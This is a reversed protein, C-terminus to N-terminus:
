RPGSGISTLWRLIRAPELKSSRFGVYTDPRVILVGTGPWDRVRDVHTLPGLSSPDLPPTDRELLIHVGPTAVVDHLRRGDETLQTDPLRDGPRPRARSLRGDGWSLASRRYNIRLQSLSRAGEAVLRRRRLMMPVLPAAVPAVGSRLFRAVPDTGAEGWFLLRTAALVRRAVPRRESEYSDLLPQLDSHSARSRAAAFALKWGLNLADQIGTNMGQGGAPSHTHAADGVLFASRKRYRSALRHELPVRSSWAVDTVTADLSADDLLRQVGVKPVAEEPGIGPRRPRTALVRWTAQESLALLFLLGTGSLAMHGVEPALDTALEVDALVVEHRYPGGEWEAGVSRRVLSDSGDCGAVFRASVVESPGDASRVVATAQEGDIGLDTLEVGWEVDVGRDSLADALLEEVVAQREFVLFPFRTDDLALRGLQTPVVRAGLHLDVSPAVEGRELIADSVGLPRLMELTRPHVIIARSPRFPDTRREVIRVEAGLTAAQLALALGSPGAGVVLLDVTTGRM